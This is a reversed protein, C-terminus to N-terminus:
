VLSTGFSNLKRYRPRLRFINVISLGLHCRNLFQILKLWGLRFNWAPWFASYQSCAQSVQYATLTQQIFKLALPNYLNLSVPFLKAATFNTREIVYMDFAFTNLGLYEYFATRDADNLLMTVFVSVLFFRSLLRASAGKLLHPQSVLIAAFFDGHRNEDQCWGEFYKFIPYIRYIYNHQLHRFITIYRWYGIKESLYTAYLILRPSFFTYQRAKTLFGLDLNIDFDALCKNLFGAHRAEDRSLLSFGESLLNNQNALKRAIEKYLLFGSFEATCSRELFEVLMVRTEAPLYKICKKAISFENDRVFHFRNYDKRLESLIALMDGRKRDLKYNMLAQFDTTYFRPKLLSTREGKAKQGISIKSSIVM